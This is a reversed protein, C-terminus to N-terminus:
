GGGAAIDSAVGAIQAETRATLTVAFGESALRTAIAKGFGRGAGTVIATGKVSADSM